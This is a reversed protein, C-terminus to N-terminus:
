RMRRQHERAASEFDFIKLIALAPKPIALPQRSCTQDLPYAVGM